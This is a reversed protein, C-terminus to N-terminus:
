LWDSCFRLVTKHKSVHLLWNKLRLAISFVSYLIFTLFDTSWGSM